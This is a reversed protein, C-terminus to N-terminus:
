FGIAVRTKGNNTNTGRGAADLGERRQQFTKGVLWASGEDENKMLIGMVGGIERLNELPRCSHRDLHNLGASSDLGVM